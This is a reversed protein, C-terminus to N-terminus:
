RPRLAEAVRVAVAPGLNTEITLLLGDVRAFAQTVQKSEPSFLAISDAPLDTEFAPLSPAGEPSVLLVRLYPGSLKGNTPESSYRLELSGRPAVDRVVARLKPLQIARLAATIDAVSVRRASLHAKPSRAAALPMRDLGNFGDVRFRRNGIRLAVPKLTSRDVAVRVAQGRAAFTLWYVDRGALRGRESVEAVRNALASRYVEVFSTTVSDSARANVRRDSVVTAGLSDRLRRESRSHDYWEDLRHHLLRSQGTRLDVLRVSARDDILALHVVAPQAVVRLAREIVGARSNTTVILAAILAAATLAAAALLVVARRHKRTSRQTATIADVIALGTPDDAFLDVLEADM